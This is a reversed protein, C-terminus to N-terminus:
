SDQRLCYSRLDEQKNRIESRYRQNRRERAEREDAGDRGRVPQQALDAYEDRLAELASTKRACSGADRYNRRLHNIRQMRNPTRKPITVLRYATRRGERGRLVAGERFMRELELAVARTAVQYGHHELHRNVRTASWHAARDKLLVATVLDRLPAPRSHHPIMPSM